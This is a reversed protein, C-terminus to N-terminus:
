YTLEVGRELRRIAGSTCTNYGRSDITTDGTALNKTVRVIVCGRTLNFSFISNTSGGVVSTGTEPSHLPAGTSVLQGNCTVGGAFDPDFQSSGGFFDWFMACEMGSEANYFAYQSEKASQSILLQKLTVNAVVFSVLLILATVMIAVLLTFGANRRKYIIKPINQM